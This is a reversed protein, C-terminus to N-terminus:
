CSGQQLKNISSLLSGTAAALLWLLCVVPPLQSCDNTLSVSGRHPISLSLTTSRRGDTTRRLRIFQNSKETSVVTNPHRCPHLMATKKTSSHDRCCLVTPARREKCFGIAPQCIWNPNLFLMEKELYDDRFWRKCHRKEKSSCLPLEKDLIFEWVVDMPLSNTRHKWESCGAPCKVVPLTLSIERPLTDEGWRLSKLASLDAKMEVTCEQFHTGQSMLISQKVNTLVSFSRVWWKRFTMPILSWVKIQISEDMLMKWIFVPWLSEDDCGKGAKQSLHCYCNGCIPALRSGNQQRPYSAFDIECFERKNNRVVLDNLNVKVVNFMYETPEPDFCNDAKTRRCNCCCEDILNDDVVDEDGSASHCHASM